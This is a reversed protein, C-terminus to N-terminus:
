VHHLCTLYLHQGETQLSGSERLGPRGEGLTRHGPDPGPGATPAAPAKQVEEVVRLVLTTSLGGGELDLSAIFFDGDVGDGSPLYYRSIECAVEQENCDAHLLL